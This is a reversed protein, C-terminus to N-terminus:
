GRDEDIRAETSRPVRMSRQVFDAELTPFRRHRSAFQLVTRLARTRAM